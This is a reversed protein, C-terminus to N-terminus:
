FMAMSFFGAALAMRAVPTWRRDNVNHSCQWALRAWSFYVLLRLVDLLDGWGWYGAGRISEACVIMCSTAWGIPIGWLWWVKWLRHAIAVNDSPIPPAPSDM